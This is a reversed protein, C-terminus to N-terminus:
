TRTDELHVVSHLELPLDNAQWRPKRTLRDAVSATLLPHIELLKSVNRSITGYTNSASSNRFLSTLMILPMFGCQAEALEFREQRGLYLAM